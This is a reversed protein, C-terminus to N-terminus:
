KKVVKKGNKIYLGKQAKNVRQGQLNYIFKDNIMQEKDNLSASKIGTTEDDIFNIRAAAGAPIIFYARLGKLGNATNLKKIKGDTALYAITGDTALSKNYIQAAFKYDGAGETEGSTNEVIVGNFTPNVADADPKVLYPKGAEFSTADTFSIVNDTASAFKKVEWGTPIEVDFPVSFTNWYSASLTRTLTVNALTYIPASTAEESITETEPIALLTIDDLGVWNSSATIWNFTLTTATTGDSEFTLFRYEWGRGNNSNAYTGDGFNPTGDTEIGKGTSSKHPFTITNTGDSLTLRGNTSARGKAILVYKAKPLTVTQTMARASANYEDYYEDSGDGTTGDWSEGHNLGPANTWAGLLATADYTYNTTAASYDSVNMTQMNTILTAATTSAPDIAPVAVGFVTAVVSEQEYENYTDKAAIFTAKADNLASTQSQYGVVTNPETETATIAAVLDTKEKGTINSYAADDRATTAATLANDWMIRCIGINDETTLLTIDSFSVWKGGLIQAYVQMKVETSETLDFAFLRWEWGRGNNSNAFTGEGYNVAGSTDIGKGTDGQANYHKYVADADGLKVSMNFAGNVGAARAAAKFVYHGAPLTVTNTVSMTFGSGSNKDIYSRSDGSWHQGSGTGTNQNTWEGFINTADITYNSTTAADELAYLGRMATLLDNNSGSTPRVVDNEDVGMLLANTKETDFTNYNADAAIFAATKTTLTNYAEVYEEYTLPTLAIAALLETKETGTINAYDVNDRASTAATLADDYLPKIGQYTVRFNDGTVWTAAGNHKIGININGTLVKFPETTVDAYAAGMDGNKEEDSSGYVIAGKDNSDHVYATVTYKGKPLNTLRQYYDINMNTGSWGELQTDGTGETFNSNGRTSAYAIWGRPMVTKNANYIGENYIVGTLDLSNSATLTGLDSPSIYKLQFDDLLMAYHNGSGDKVAVMYASITLTTSPSEKYIVVGYNLWEAASGAKDTTVADKDGEKISLYWKTDNPSSSSTKIKCTLLYLGAPQGAAIEQQVGFNGTKNWNQRVYFYKSDATAGDSGSLVSLTSSKNVVAAQANSVSTTPLITWGTVTASNLANKTADSVAADTEFSPNTIVSTVDTWDTQAWVSIGGGFLLAVSALLLKLKRM